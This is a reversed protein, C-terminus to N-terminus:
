KNHEFRNTDEVFISNLGLRYRGTHIDKAMDITLTQNKEDWCTSTLFKYKNITMDM